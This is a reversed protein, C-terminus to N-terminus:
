QRPCLNDIGIQICFRGLTFPSIGTMAGAAVDGAVQIAQSIDNTLLEKIRDHHPCVKNKIDLFSGVFWKRAIEILENMDSPASGVEAKSIQWAIDALVDPQVNVLLDEIESAM